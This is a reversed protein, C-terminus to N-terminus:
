REPLFVNFGGLGALSTLGLYDIRVLFERLYVRLDFGDRAGTRRKETLTGAEDTLFEARKATAVCWSAVVGRRELLLEVFLWRRTAERLSM